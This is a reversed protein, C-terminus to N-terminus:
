EQGCIHKSSSYKGGFCALYGNTNDIVDELSIWSRLSHNEDIQCIWTLNVSVDWKLTCHECVALYNGEEVPDLYGEGVGVCQNLDLESSVFMDPLDDIVRGASTSTPTPNTTTTTTTTTTVINCIAQIRHQEYFGCLSCRNYFAAPDAPTALVAAALAAVLALLTSTLRPILMKSILNSISLKVTHTQPRPRHPNAAALRLAPHHPLLQNPQTDAVSLINEPCRPTGERTTHFIQLPM